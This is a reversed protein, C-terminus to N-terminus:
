RRLIVRDDFDQLWEILFMWSRLWNLFYRPNKTEVEEGWILLNIWLVVGVCKFSCLIFYTYLLMLWLKNSNDCMKKMKTYHCIERRWSRIRRGCQRVVKDILHQVRKQWRRKRWSRRDENHGGGSDKGSTGWIRYRWRRRPWWYRWQLGTGSLRWRRRKKWKQWLINNSSRGLQLM